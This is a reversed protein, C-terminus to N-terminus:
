ARETLIDQVEQCNQFQEVGEFFSSLTYPQKKLRYSYDDIEITYVTHFLDKNVLLYEDLAGEFDCYYENV